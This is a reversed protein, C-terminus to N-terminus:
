VLIKPCHLRDRTASCGTPRHKGGTRQTGLNRDGAASDHFFEKVRYLIGAFRALEDKSLVYTVPGKRPSNIAFKIGPGASITLVSAHATEMETMSGITKWSDSQSKVAKSWLEILLLWEERRFSFSSRLPTAIGLLAVKRKSAEVESDVVTVIDLEVGGNRFKAVIDLQVGAQMPSTLGPLSVTLMTIVGYIATRILQSM